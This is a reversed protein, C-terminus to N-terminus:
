EEVWEVKVCEHTDFTYGWEQPVIWGGPNIAKVTLLKPGTNREAVYIDGPQLERGIEKRNGYCDRVVLAMVQDKDNLLWHGM